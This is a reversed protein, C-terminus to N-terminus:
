DADRQALSVVAASGSDFLDLRAGDRRYRKGAELAAMFAGELDMVAEPCAMRTGGMPGIELSEGSVKYSGFFANCGGNGKLSGEAEFRVFIEADEPVAANGLVVPRWESGALEGANPAAACGALASVLLLAGAVRNMAGLEILMM